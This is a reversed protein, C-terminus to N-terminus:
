AFAFVRRLRYRMGNGYSSLMPSLRPCSDGRWVLAAIGWDV